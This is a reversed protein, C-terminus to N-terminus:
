RRALLERPDIFNPTRRGTSAGDQEEAPPAPPAAVRRRSLLLWALAAAALGSVGVSLLLVRQQVALDAATADLLETFANLAASALGLGAERVRTTALEVDIRATARSLTDASDIKATAQSLTAASTTFEDLPALLPLDPSLSAAGLGASVEQAARSIRDRLIPVLPDTPATHSLSALDGAIALVEPVRKMGVDILHSSSGPDRTVQSSDALWALVERTMAVPVAFARVAEAGAPNRRLVEEIESNIRAWRQDIRLRAAHAPDVGNVEGISARIGSDDIRITRAATYQADVLGALLGNLPRAYAAAAREVAVVDSMGSNASWLQGILFVMPSLALVLAAIQLARSLPANRQPPRAAHAAAPVLNANDSDSPALSM